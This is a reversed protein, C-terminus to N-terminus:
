VFKLESILNNFTMDVQRIYCLTRETKESQYSAQLDKLVKFYLGCLYISNYIGQWIGDHFMLQWALKFVMYCARESNIKQLIIFFDQLSAVVGQSVLFLALDLAIDNYVQTDILDKWLQMDELYLLDSNNRNMIPVNSQFQNIKLEFYELNQQNPLMKFFCHNYKGLRKEMNKIRENIRLIENLDSIHNLKSCVKSDLFNVVLLDPEKTEHNVRNLAEDM